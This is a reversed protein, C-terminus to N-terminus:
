IHASTTGHIILQNKGNHKAFYLAKDTNQFLEKFGIENKRTWSSMGVSITVKPNTAKPIKEILNSAFAEGQLSNKHPLFIAIEEGGWRSAFGKGEVLTLITASIQKLVDDGTTHGYTDNVKKFDDVDLLLFVGKSDKELSHHIIEDLYNRTYLKTLNDKDVLEQLKDRLMSNAIALSSHSILSRMLKFSDFSFYYRDQHLLIVFGTHHDQNTFPIAILSKFLEDKEFVGTLNAEFITENGSNLQKEVFDVLEQSYEKQFFPTSVPSMIPEGYDNYFAFAIEDPSFAQLLQSKLFYIMKNVHINSNLKRSTDNVLQLEDVLRHTQDYLSANELSSGATNAIMKIFNLQENSFLYDFPARIQLIGYIGQRGKIPANMLNCQLDAAREVTMEGSLFADVASPRENLYDFLKFEASQEQQEHSLLLDVQFKPFSESITKIVEHLIVKSKMTSNFRETMQFLSRFTQEREQLQMMKKVSYIMKGIMRKLENLDETSSVFSKWENSTTFVVIGVPEEMENHFIISENAFGFSHHLTHTSSSDSYLVDKNRNDDNEIENKVLPRFRNNEYILFEAREINFQNAFSATFKNFWHEFSEYSGVDAFMDMFSSKVQYLVLKPDTM